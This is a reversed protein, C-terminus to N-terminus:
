KICLFSNEPVIIDATEKPQIIKSLIEMGTITRISPKSFFSNADVVFVRKGKVARLSKWEQNNRLVQDYEKVTRIVDFGCPALIIIDPDSTIIEQITLRRSHEGTESILNKGGAFEIMQPVWHGATFFPDIWEIVLVKPMKNSKIQKVKQIRKKLSDAIKEAKEQRSLIEGLKIVSDIIEDINHPDMSHLIPKGGLVQIAKNVQNTYAACVECTEQSIILDPNAKKLNEENLVFIDKGEKLLSCTTQDIENSTLNESDIVTNIVRPKSRAEAPYLCEHTVGTIKEQEGLEYLLETASPLFSVIRNITM